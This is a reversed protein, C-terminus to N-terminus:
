KNCRVKAMKYIPKRPQGQPNEVPFDKGDMIAGLKNLSNWGLLAGGYKKFAQPLQVDKNGHTYIGVIKKGQQHAMRIEDNVWKRSFTRKGIMCIFTGAWSVQRRLFRQIVRDSPRKKETHKTSDVSYNRISYGKDILRRKLDQVKDDDKGHHSIFVNYKKNM